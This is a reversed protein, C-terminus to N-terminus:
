RKHKFVFYSILIAVAFIANIFLLPIKNQSKPQINNIDTEYFDSNLRGKAANSNINNILNVHKRLCQYASDPKGIFAFYDSKILHYSAEASTYMFERIITDAHMLAIKCQEARSLKLESVAINLYSDAMEMRNETLDKFKISNYASAIADEFNGLIIKLVSLNNFCLAQSEPDNQTVAEQLATHFYGLAKGALVSDKLRSAESTFMTGLNILCNLSQKRDDIESSIKLATLYCNEALNLSLGESYVNGLNIMSLMMGRKDKIKERLQYAERHFSLSKGLEGKRYYLIGLLNLAKARYFETRSQEAAKKAEIACEYSYQADKTRYSFGEKYFLNVRDTDNKLHAAIQKLSDIDQARGISFILFFVAYFCRALM